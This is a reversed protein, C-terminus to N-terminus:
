RSPRQNASIIAKVFEVFTAAESTRRRAAAPRADWVTTLSFRDRHALIFGRRGWMRFRLPEYLSKRAAPRVTWSRVTKPNDLGTEKRVIAGQDFKAFMMLGTGGLGSQIAREMEVFTRAGETANTFEGMDPHGVAAELAAVAQGFPKASTVSLREIEVKRITM